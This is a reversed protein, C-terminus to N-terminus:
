YFDNSNQANTAFIQSRIVGKTAYNYSFIQPSNVFDTTYHKIVGNFCFLAPLVFAEDSTKLPFKTDNLFFYIVVETDLQKTKIKKRM